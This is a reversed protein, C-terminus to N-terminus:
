FPIFPNQRGLSPPTTTPPTPLILTQLFPHKLPATNLDIDKLRKVENLEQAARQAEPSLFLPTLDEPQSPGVLFYAAVGILLIIVIGIILPMKLM